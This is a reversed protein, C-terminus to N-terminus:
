EIIPKTKNNNPTQDTVWTEQSNDQGVKDANGKASKNERSKLKKKKKSRHEQKMTLVYVSEREHIKLNTICMQYHRECLQVCTPIQECM